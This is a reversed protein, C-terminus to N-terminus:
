ARLPAAEVGSVKLPQAMLFYKGPEVDTLDLGEIIPINRSLLAKHIVQNTGHIGITQSDTGVLKIDSDAIYYASSEMLYSFGNGKILLRECNNFPFNDDAFAGTIPGPPTEVVLCEGIFLDLPLGEVKAGGDIFHNPADVHTATHLCTYISNLNCNDGDKIKKIPDVYGEPDGPYVPTKMLDRSIDIIDM